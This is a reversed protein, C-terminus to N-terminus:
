SSMWYTVPSVDPSAELKSIQRLHEFQKEALRLAFRYTIWAGLLAGLVAAWIENPLNM